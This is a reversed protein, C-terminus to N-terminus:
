NSHLIGQEFARAVIQARSRAGLKAYLMRIHFEVTGRSREVRSAIEKSQQGEALAFIIAREIDSLSKV